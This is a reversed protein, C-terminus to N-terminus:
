KIKHKKDYWVAMLPLGITGAAVLALFLAQPLTM